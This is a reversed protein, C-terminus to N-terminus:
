LNTPLDIFITELNESVSLEKEIKEKVLNVGFTETEYHGGGIVNIKMEKAYHYQEHQFEGTIFADLNEAIAQSIDDSGGGSIIGVTKIEPKGFNLIVPAIKGPRLVSNALKELTIPNEFEGKVGVPMGKWFGFNQLNKMGLQRAMGYNNGVESNADLPLHYAILALNNKIFTSARKYFSGTLTECHGWFIGHHVFLVDAGNEIAIRASEECADVAFAIKKIQASPNTNQIQIGNLSPDYPFNEKHLFSNLYDNLQLLNM